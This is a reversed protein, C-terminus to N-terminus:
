SHLVFIGKAAAYEIKIAAGLVCSRDSQADGAVQKVVYDVDREAPVAVDAHGSALAIKIKAQVANQAVEIKIDSAGAGIDINGSVQHLAIAGSGTAVKLNSLETTEVAGTGTCAFVSQGKPCIICSDGELELEIQKDNEFYRIVPAEVRVKNYDDSGKISLKHRNNKIVLQKDTSMSEYLSSQCLQYQSNKQPHFNVKDTIKEVIQKWGVIPIAIAVALLVIGLVVGLLPIILMSLLAVISAAAFIIVLQPVLGEVKKGNFEIRM